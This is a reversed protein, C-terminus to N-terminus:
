VAEPPNFVDLHELLTVDRGATRCGQFLKFDAAKAFVIAQKFGTSTGRFTFRAPIAVQMSRQMHEGLSNAAMRIAHPADKGLQALMGKVREDGEIKVSLDM